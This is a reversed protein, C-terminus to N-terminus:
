PIKKSDLDKKVLNKLYQNCSVDISDLYSQLRLADSIDTPTYKITFVKVKERYKKDAKKQAETTAM